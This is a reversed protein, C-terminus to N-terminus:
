AYPIEESVQQTSQQKTVYLRRNKGLDFHMKEMVKIFTQMDIPKAAYGECGYAFAANVTNTDNITTTM